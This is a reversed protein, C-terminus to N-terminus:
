LFHLNAALSCRSMNMIPGRGAEATAGEESPGQLVLRRCLVDASTLAGAVDVDVCPLITLVAPLWVFSNTRLM